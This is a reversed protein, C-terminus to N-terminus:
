SRTPDAYQLLKEWEFEAPTEHFSELLKFTGESVKADGGPLYFRQLGFALLQADQQSLLYEGARQSSPTLEGRMLVVGHSSVFDTYNTLILHPTAFTQRLKYEQLPTFLITSIDPNTSKTPPTFLDSSPVPASPHFAWQMFYFEFAEDNESANEVQKSNVSRRLPLLFSPYSRARKTLSNYTDIPIVASIYGRGTGKSLSSHYGTWLASIQEPTHKNELIKPVNM